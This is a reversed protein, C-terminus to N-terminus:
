KPVAKNPRIQNLDLSRVGDVKLRKTTPRYIIKRAAAKSTPGNVQEQSFIEADTRGDGELILMDKAEAYTMRIARATFTSGEVLTNGLAELEVAQRDANPVSMQSVTLQDCGLLFGNPGLADPDDDPLSAQWSKIPGYTTRVQDHFTLTRNHVNGSISGQFRVNLYTLGGDDADDKGTQGFSTLPGGGPALASSGRRRSTVWGPGAASLEGSDLNIAVNGVQMQDISVLGAEDASRNEIITAGHCGIRHLQPRPQGRPDSFRIPQKFGVELTETQVTQDPTTAVVAQEFVAKRGDFQMRKQWEVKLPGASDISNGQLDRDIALDMRGAGEITLLNTGRNLNIEPGTLGLGRGEFHAPRGKVTVVAHPESADIVHLLDGQVALPQEDPQETQTETFRVNGEVTLESLATSGERMDVKARLLSGVIEFHQRPEGSAAAPDSVAEVGSGPGWGGVEPKRSAVESKAQNFWVELQDVVGSLQPSQVHVERRALMRDPRLQSKESGDVPASELLWFHVEEAELRGIGRYSLEAGGTLSILHNEGDPGIQLQKKWRAELQEGPREAMQGRLWGPGEALVKGLRNTEHPEYQLSQAHIENVGQQLHVERNGDLRILGTRLDYLLRQGRAEVGRSPARIVVPDGRAEIQTAELDLPNAPPEDSSSRKQGSSKSASKASRSNARLEFHISLMECNLQDSPGDVHSRLLDVHDEFMAVRRVLDFRFPGRCTVEIAENSDARRNRDAALPGDKSKARTALGEKGVELHLRELHSVEFSEIGVINPGPRKRGSDSKGDAMLKIYMQRGRGYNPGLRFDVAHPTWIHDETLQVDRTVVLLDDEPGASKGNGRITIPGMLRGTKLRGIKARHLDFAQDFTLLAGKPAQLIIARHRREEETSPPGDPVFIMTCPQIKVRGDGLNTYDRLLLKVQDSELIKPNELEWSGKPFLGELKALGNQITGHAEELRAASVGGPGSADVSPEILPVALLSYTWYLVLVIALSGSIHLIRTM